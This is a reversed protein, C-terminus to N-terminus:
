HSSIRQHDLSNISVQVEVLNLLFCYSIGSDGMRPGQRGDGMKQRGDGIEWRRDRTKHREVTEDGRKDRAELRRDSKQLQQCNVSVPKKFDTSRENVSVM